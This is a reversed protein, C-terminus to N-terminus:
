LPKKKTEEDLTKAYELCAVRAMFETNYEGMPDSWTENWFFWKKTDRNMSVPDMAYGPPPWPQFGQLNCNNCTDFATDIGHICRGLKAPSPVKVKPQAKRPKFGRRTLNLKCLACDGVLHDHSNQYENALNAVHCIMQMLKLRNMGELMGVNLDKLTIEKM